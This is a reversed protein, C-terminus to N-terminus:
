PSIKPTSQLTPDYVKLCSKRRGFSGPQAIKPTEWLKKRIRSFLRPGRFPLSFRTLPVSPMVREKERGKKVRGRFGRAAAIDFGTPLFRSRNIRRRRLFRLISGLRPLPRIRGRDTRHCFAIQASFPLCVICHWSIWNRWKPQEIPSGGARPVAAHSATLTFGILHFCSKTKAGAETPGSVSVIEWLCRPGVSPCVGEDEAEERHGKAWKPNLVKCLM